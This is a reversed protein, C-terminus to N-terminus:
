TLHIGRFDPDLGYLARPRQGDVFDKYSMFGPRRRSILFVLINFPCKQCQATLIILYVTLNAKACDTTCRVPSPRAQAHEIHLRGIHFILNLSTKM